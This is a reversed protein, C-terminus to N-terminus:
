MRLHRVLKVMTLSVVGGQLDKAKFLAVNFSAAGAVPKFQEQFSDRSQSLAGIDHRAILYGTKNYSLCIARLEFPSALGSTEVAISFRSMDSAAWGGWPLRRANHQGLLSPPLLSKAGAFETGNWEGGGLLVYGARGIPPFLLSGAAAGSKVGSKAASAKLYRPDRATDILAQGDFGNDVPGARRIQVGGLARHAQLMLKARLGRFGSLPEKHSSGPLDLAPRPGTQAKVQQVAPSLAYFKPDRAGDDSGAARILDDYWPTGSYSPSAVFGSDYYQPHLLIRYRGGPRWTAVFDRLDRQNPSLKSNQHGGDSFQGNFRPSYKNHVWRLSTRLAEPIQLSNNNRGESDPVGGHASCFDIDFRQRLDAVDESFIEQARHANWGSREYANFHYGVVSGAAQRRRLLEEDLPYVTYEIQKSQVLFRRDLRRVFIMTNAPIGDHHPDRLLDMTREPATDVDYQIVVYIKDPDLRGDKLRHQWERWESRYGDEYAFDDGWCFDKYTICRVTDTNDRVFRFLDILYSRPFYGPSSKEDRM